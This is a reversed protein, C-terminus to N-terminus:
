GSVVRPRMMADKFGHKVFSLMDNYADRTAKEHHAVLAKAYRRGICRFRKGHEITYHALNEAEQRCLAWSFLSLFLAPSLPTSSAIYQKLRSPSSNTPHKLGYWVLSAILYSGAVQTAYRVLSRVGLMHRYGWSLFIKNLGEYDKNEVLPLLQKYASLMFESQLKWKEEAYTNFLYIM